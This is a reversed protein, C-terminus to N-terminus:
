KSSIHSLLEDRNPFCHEEPVNDALVSDGKAHYKVVVGNKDSNVIVNEIEFERIKLTQKDITCVNDGVNYKTQVNM